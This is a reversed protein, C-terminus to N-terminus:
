SVENEFNSRTYIWSRFNWVVLHFYHASQSQIFEPFHQICFFPIVNDTVKNMVHLLQNKCFLEREEVFDFQFMKSQKKKLKSNKMLVGFYKSLTQGFFLFILHFTVLFFECNLYIQLFNHFISYKKQSGGLSRKNRTLFSQESQCHWWTELVSGSDCVDFFFDFWM